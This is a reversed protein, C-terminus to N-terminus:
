IKIYFASSRGRKPKPGYGCRVVVGCRIWLQVQKSARIQNRTNLELNNFKLLLKQDFPEQPIKMQDTGELDFRHWCANDKSGEKFETQVEFVTEWDAGCSRCGFHFTQDEVVYVKEQQCYPCKMLKRQDLMGGYM